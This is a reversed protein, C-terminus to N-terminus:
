CGNKDRWNRKNWSEILRKENVGKMEANCKSCKIKGIKRSNNGVCCAYPMYGCFPCPKLNYPNKM